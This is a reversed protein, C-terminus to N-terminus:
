ACGQHREGQCVLDCESHGEIALVFYLHASCHACYIYM